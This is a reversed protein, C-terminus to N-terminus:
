VWWALFAVEVLAPRPSVIFRRGRQWNRGSWGSEVKGGSALSPSKEERRETSDAGEESQYRKKRLPSLLLPHSVPLSCCFPFLLAVGTLLQLTLSVCVNPLHPSIRVITMAFLFIILLWTNMCSPQSSHCKQYSSTARGPYILLLTNLIAWTKSTSFDCIWVGPWYTLKAAGCPSGPPPYRATSDSHWDSSNPSWQTPLLSGM